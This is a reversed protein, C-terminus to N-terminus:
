IGRNNVYMGARNGSYSSSSSNNVRQNRQPVGRSEKIKSDRDYTCSIYIVLYIFIIITLIFMTLIAVPRDNDHIAEYEYVMTFATLSPHSPDLKQIPNGDPSSTVNHTYLFYMVIPITSNM